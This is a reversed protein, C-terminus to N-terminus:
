LALSSFLSPSSSTTVMEKWAECDDDEKAQRVAHVFADVLMDKHQVIDKAKRLSYFYVNHSGGEGGTTTTTTDKNPLPLSTVINGRRWDTARDDAEDSPKNCLSEIPLIVLTEFIPPPMSTVFALQGEMKLLRWMESCYTAM